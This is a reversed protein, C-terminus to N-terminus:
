PKQSFLAKDVVGRFLWCLLPVRRDLSPALSSATAGLQAPPETRGVGVRDEGVGGGGGPSGLCGQAGAANRIVLVGGVQNMRGRQVGWGLLVGTAEALTGLCVKGQSGSLLGIIKPWDCAQERSPAQM